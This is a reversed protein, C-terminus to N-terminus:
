LFNADRSRSVGGCLACGCGGSVVVCCSLCVLTVSMPAKATGVFIPVSLADSVTRYERAM